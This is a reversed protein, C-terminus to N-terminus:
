TGGFLRLTLVLNRKFYQMTETKVYFFWTSVGDHVLYEPVNEKDLGQLLKMVAGFDTNSCDGTYMSAIERIYQSENDECSFPNYYYRRENPKTVGLEILQPRSSFSVVHNPM